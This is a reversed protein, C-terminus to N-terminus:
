SPKMVWVPATRADGTAPASSINLTRWTTNPNTITPMASVTCPQQSFVLIPQRQETVAPTTGRITTLTAGGINRTHREFSALLVAKSFVLRTGGDFGVGVIAHTLDM